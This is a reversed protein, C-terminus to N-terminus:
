FLHGTSHSENRNLLVIKKGIYQVEMPGCCNADATRTSSAHSGANELLEYASFQASAM